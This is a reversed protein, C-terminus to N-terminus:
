GRGCGRCCGSVNYTDFRISASPTIGSAGVAGGSAGIAAAGRPDNHVTWTVGDAIAASPLETRFVFSCYFTDVWFRGGFWTAGAQNTASQTLAVPMAGTEGYYAANGAVAWVTATASPTRTATVTAPPSM